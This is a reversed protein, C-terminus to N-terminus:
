QARTITIEHSVPQNLQYIKQIIENMEKTWQERVEKKRAQQYNDRKSAVGWDSSPANNVSDLAAPTDQLYMGKKKFYNYQLWCYARLKSELEHYQLNLIAIKQAQKYQPTNSLLALNIGNNFQDGTWEGITEGDIALSYKAAKKLGAISLMEKNFEETFPIVALADSQKQPNEWVRPQEDMPYPLSNAKYRFSIKGESTKINSITSNESKILKSKKSNIRVDAVVLNSLGQAKLFIYAMTFHGANGPHIRDPGTITFNTDKKQERLNIATMPRMLDVFCWDNKKASTQQFEAIAEMTAYKGPFHNKTGGKTEDYPSSTMIIKRIGPFQILKREIQEYSSFSAAVAEQRVKEQPNNLYEFYRSDNMGFSMVVVSPEGALIDDDLRDLINKANDGGIGGNKITIRREPYHLQYYQWIYMEYFGHETISNGAFVIRDGDKFPAPSRQAMTTLMSGILLVAFFLKM